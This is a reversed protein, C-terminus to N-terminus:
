PLFGLAQEIAADASHRDTWPLDFHVWIAYDKSTNSLSEGEASITSQLKFYERIYASTSYKGTSPDFLADIKFLRDVGGYPRVFQVSSAIEYFEHCSSYSNPNIM